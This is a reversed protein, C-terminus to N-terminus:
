TEPTACWTAKHISLSYLMRSGQWLAFTVRDCMDRQAFRGPSIMGMPVSLSAFRSM